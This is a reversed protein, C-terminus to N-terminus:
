RAELPGLGARETVTPSDGVVVVRVTVGWPVDGYPVPV